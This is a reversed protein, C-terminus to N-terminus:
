LLVYNDEEEEELLKCVVEPTNECIFVFCSRPFPFVCLHCLEPHYPKRSNEFKLKATSLNDKFGELTMASVVSSPLNNWLRITSPFFSQQHTRLRSFPIQFKQNYGRTKSPLAPTLHHQPMQVLDNLIKFFM